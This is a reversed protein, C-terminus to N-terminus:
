WTMGIRSIKEIIVAAAKRVPLSSDNNFPAVNLLNAFEYEERKTMLSDFISLQRALEEHGKQLGKASASLGAYRLMIKQLKLKKEVVAQNPIETRPAESARM